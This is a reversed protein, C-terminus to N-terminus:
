RRGKIEQLTIRLAIENFFVRISPFISPLLLLPHCFILHNSLIASEIFLLKLLSQSITSSLPTLVWHSFLLLFSLIIYSTSMFSKVSSFFFNYLKKCYSKEENETFCLSLVKSKRGEKKREPKWQTLRLNFGRNLFFDEKEIKGKQLKNTVM